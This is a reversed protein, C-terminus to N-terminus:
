QYEGNVIREYECEADKYKESGGRKVNWVEEIIAIKGIGIKRLELVKRVHEVVHEPLEVLEDTRTGTGSCGGKVADGLVPQSCDSFVSQVCGLQRAISAIDTDSVFPIQVMFPEDHDEIDFVAQGTKLSSIMDQQETLSLMVAQKDRMRHVIRTNFTDRIETGGSKTANAAQGICLAFVKHKRGEYNLDEILAAMAEATKAWKEDTGKQRIIASFEDVVLLLPYACAEGDLRADLVKRVHNVSRMASQPNDGVPCDFLSSFPKIKQYMSDEESKAHKDILAIRGGQLLVQVMLWIATSTKGGGQLGLIIVAKIKKWCAHIEQMEADFGLLMDDTGIRNEIILDAISPMAKKEKPGEIAAPAQAPEISGTVIRRREIAPVYVMKIGDKDFSAVVDNQSFHLYQTARRKGQVEYWRGVSDAIQNNLKTCVFVVGGFTCFGVISVSIVFFFARLEVLVVAVFFVVALVGILQIYRM